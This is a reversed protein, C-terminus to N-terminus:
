VVQVRAGEMMMEVEDAVAQSSCHSPVGITCRASFVTEGLGIVPYRNCVLDKAYCDLDALVAQLEGEPDTRNRCKVDLLIIKTLPAAVAGAEVAVCRFVMEPFKEALATKIAQVDEGLLQFKVILSIRGGLRIARHAVPEGGMKRILDVISAKIGPTDAGNVTVVFSTHM